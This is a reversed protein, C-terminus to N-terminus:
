LIKNNSGSEVKLIFHAYRCLLHDRPPVRLRHAPAPKLGGKLQMALSSNQHANLSLNTPANHRSVTVHRESLANPTLNGRAVYGQNKLAM